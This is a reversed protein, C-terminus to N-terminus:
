EGTTNMLESNWHVARPRSTAERADETNWGTYPVMVVEVLDHLCSQILRLKLEECSSLNWLVQTLLDRIEAVRSSRLVKIIEMLRQDTAILHKNENTTRGYSLNKLASLVTIQVKTDPHHILNVLIPIVGHERRPSCPSPLPLSLSLYEKSQM